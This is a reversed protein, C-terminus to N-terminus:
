LTARTKEKWKGDQQTLRVVTAEFCSVTQTVCISCEANDMM